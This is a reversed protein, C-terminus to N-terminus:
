SPAPQPPARRRRRGARVGGDPRRRLTQGDVEVAGSAVYAAREAISPRCSPAARGRRLEWHVYFLPSHTTCRRARRRVGRRRDAAGVAGREEFAPLDDPATTRSPRTPRRTARRAARGLGPHRAHPRGRPARARLARFPHHRPRRDDLEGRGAPDGAGVGVSDRHTIEGEFLYTVTSLGIHPHPRVDVTRPFAPRSTSRAWTTSSSSRGSWGGSRRVAARARGRLRRPRTRRQDIVLDPM